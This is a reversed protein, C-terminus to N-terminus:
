AYLESNIKVGTELFEVLLDGETVKFFSAMVKGASILVKFKTKRTSSQHHCDMSQRKTLPNSHHVWTIRGRFADGGKKM